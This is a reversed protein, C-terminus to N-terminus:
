CQFRVNFVGSQNNKLLKQERSKVGKSKLRDHVMTKHYWAGIQNALSGAVGGGQKEALWAGHNITRITGDPLHVEAQYWITGFLGPRSGGGGEWAEWWATGRAWPVM